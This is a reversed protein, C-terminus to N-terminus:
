KTGMGAPEVVADIANASSPQYVVPWPQWALSKWTQDRLSDSPGDVGGVAVGVVGVAVETGGVAVGIVGVAVTGGVLENVVAAAAEVALTLGPPEVVTVATTVLPLAM